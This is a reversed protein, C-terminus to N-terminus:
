FYSFSLGALILMFCLMIGGILHIWLKDNAVPSAIPAVDGVLVFNSWFFPHAKQISAGELYNLKARRLAEDKPFGESLYSYFHSMLQASAADDVLWHTMVISACGAYAFARALSMIGEGQELKGYGTQCASLVALDASLEMNYLEYASLYGDELSDAANQSFILRSYMPNQDDVLAHMALHIISYQHAEQKFRGEAAEQNTFTVGPLYHRIDRAEQRSFRLPPLQSRCSELTSLPEADSNSEPYGPAFAIYRRAAPRHPRTVPHFLWTASYGYCVTYERILYPLNAFDTEATPLATLLLEFPLYGLPGDPIIALRNIDTLLSGEVIPAVLQQYLAYAPRQYDTSVTSDSHIIQRLTFLQADLLTDSPLTVVEFRDSTIVFAYRVVKGLFYAIVAEGPPLQAQISPVTATRAAYKLQHYAPYQTELLRVLSDHQQDAAFLKRQYQSSDETALKSQYFSRDAKLSVELMLLHDPVRGFQKAEQTSLAEALVGAKSRESFYFAAHLYQQDQTTRYRRLSTRIAEEYLRRATRALLLKDGHASYAGGLHRLLTDTIRYTDYALSDLGLEVLIRAKGELTFLLQSGNLYHEVNPHAYVSTDSFFVGNAILGQKYAALARTYAGQCRYVRGIRTYVIAVRPHVDGLQKMLIALAQQHYALSQGYAKKMRYVTGITNYSMAIDPHYKGLSQKRIALAQRHYVLAQDYEKKKRYSVGMNEYSMAVDPHHEGLSQKRIALARRHYVLAQNYEGKSTCVTGLNNYSAAIAPHIEPFLEKRTTLAQQYYTLARSHAGQYQYVLGIKDYSVAVDLHREGLTKKRIALARQYHTLVQDYKEIHMYIDGLLEYSDAVSPHDATYYHRLIQLARQGYRIAEESEGGHMQVFGLTRYSRAVEPHDLSLRQTSFHLAQQAVGRASDLVFLQCLNEGISNVCAVYKEWDGVKQYIPQAQRFLRNSAEYQGQKSLSDAQHYYYHAPVTDALRQAQALGNALTLCFLALLASRM